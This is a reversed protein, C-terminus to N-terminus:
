EHTRRVVKERAPELRGRPNDPRGPQVGEDSVVCLTSMDVEELDVDLACLTVDELREIWRLDPWGHDDDLGDGWKAETRRVLVRLRQEELAVIDLGREVPDVAEINRPLVLSERGHEGVGDRDEVAEHEVVELPSAVRASRLGFLQLRTERVFPAPSDLTLSM